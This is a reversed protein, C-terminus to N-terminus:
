QRAGRRAGRPTRTTLEAAAERLAAVVLRSAPTAGARAKRTIGVHRSWNSGAVAIPALTGAREEWHVLERPLFTLMDSMMVVSKMLVTSTTEIRADPPKLGAALFLEDFARRELERRRALCWPYELLDAARVAKREALPHGARAIVAAREVFLQEHELAPDSAMAPVSSLAFEIEGSRVWPMLSENLGYLVTLRIDPRERALRNAAMPLLRTAETPGCGILVHGDRAGRMAAIQASAGALEAQVARAREALAEGYATPVVGFRGREVLQVGLSAELRKISKSLAPQTLGLEAAAATLNGHRLATAFHELARLDM